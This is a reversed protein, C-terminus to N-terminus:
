GRRVIPQFTAGDIEAVAMKKHRDCLGMMGGNACGIWRTEKTCREAKPPPGFRMFNSASVAESIEVQCQDVDVPLTIKGSTRANVPM